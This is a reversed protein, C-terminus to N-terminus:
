RKRQRILFLLGTTVRELGVAQAFMLLLAAAAYAVRNESFLAKLWDSLFHFVFSLYVVVLASYILLELLFDRFSYERSRKM